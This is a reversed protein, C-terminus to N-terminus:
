ENEKVTAGCKICVVETCERGHEDCDLPRTSYHSCEEPDFYDPYEYRLHEWLEENTADNVLMKIFEGDKRLTYVGLYSIDGWRTIASDLEDLTM